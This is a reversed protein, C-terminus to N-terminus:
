YLIVLNCPMIFKIGAVKRWILVPVVVRKRVIEVSIRNLDFLEAIVSGWGWQGNEDKDQNRVTSDGVTFVGSLREKPNIRYSYRKKKKRTVLWNWNKYERIGKPPLNLM